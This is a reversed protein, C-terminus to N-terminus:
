FEMLPFSTASLMCFHMRTLIWFRTISWLFAETRSSCQVSIHFTALFDKAQSIPLIQSLSDGANRLRLRFLLLEEDTLNLTKFPKLEDVDIDVDKLKKELLPGVEDDLRLVFDGIYSEEIPGDYLKRFIDSTKRAPDVSRAVIGCLITLYIFDYNEM